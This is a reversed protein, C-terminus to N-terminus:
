SIPPAAPGFPVLVKIPKSPYRDQAALESVSGALLMASVVLMGLRRMNGERTTDVIARM